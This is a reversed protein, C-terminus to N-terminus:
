RGKGRGFASRGLGDKFTWAELGDQPRSADRNLPKGNRDYGILRDEPKAAADRASTAGAHAEQDSSPQRFFPGGISEPMDVGVPIVRKREHMKKVEERLFVIGTNYMEGDFKLNWVKPTM